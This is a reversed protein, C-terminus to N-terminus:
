KKPYYYDPSNKHSYFQDILNVFVPSCILKNKLYKTYVLEVKENNLFHTRFKSIADANDNVIYYAESARLSSFIYYFEEVTISDKKIEEPDINHLKILNSYDKLMKESEYQLGINLQYRNIRKTESYIFISIILSVVSIVIAVFSFITNQKTNM